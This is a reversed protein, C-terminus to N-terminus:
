PVDGEPHQGAKVQRQAHIEKCVDGGSPPIPWDGTRRERGTSIRVPMAVLWSITAPGLLLSRLPHTCCRAPIAAREQHDMVPVRRRKM